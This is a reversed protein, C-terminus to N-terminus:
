SRKQSLWTQIIDCQDPSTSCIGSEDELDECNECIDWHGCSEGPALEHDCELCWVHSCAKCVGVTLDEEGDPGEPMATESSGCSPCDGVFVARVFEDESDSEEALRMLEDRAEEPINGWIQEAERTEKDAKRKSGDKRGMKKDDKKM